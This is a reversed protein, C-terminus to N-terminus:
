NYKNKIPLTVQNVWYNIVNNITTYFDDFAVPKQVYSNAGNDYCVSIDEHHASSTFIIVPIHSIGNTSKIEKLIDRGDTGPLNLDLLIFLPIPFAEYDSYIGERKLYKLAQDGTECRHVTQIIRCKNIARILAEFDEDSDEVVLITQDLM